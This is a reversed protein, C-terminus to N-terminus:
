LKEFIEEARDVFKRADSKTKEAIDKTTKKTVSYQAIERRDRVDRLMEIEEKQIRLNEFNEFHSKDLLKRKVFLEELVVATATHSKSRLGLKALLSLASMYMAYYATIVVWEDATHDKPLALVDKFKEAKSLLEM